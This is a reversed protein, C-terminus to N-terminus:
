NESAEYEWMSTSWKSTLNWHFCLSSWSILRFELDANQEFILGGYQV